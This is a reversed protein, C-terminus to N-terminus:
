SAISSSVEVTNVVTAVLSTVTQLDVDVDGLLDVVETTLKKVTTITATITDVISGDRKALSSSAGTRVEKVMAASSFSAFAALALVASRLCVM